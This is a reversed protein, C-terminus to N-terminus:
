TASREPATLIADAFPMFQVAILTSYPSSEPGPSSVINCILAWDQDEVAWTEGPALKEVSEIIQLWRRMAVLGAAVGRRDNLWTELSWATFTKVVPNGSNDVAPQRTVPHLLTINSPVTLTHM